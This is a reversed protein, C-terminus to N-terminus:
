TYFIIYLLIIRSTRLSITSKSIINGLGSDVVGSLEDGFVAASYTRVCPRECISEFFVEDTPYIIAPWKQM